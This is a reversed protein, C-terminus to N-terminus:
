RIIKKSDLIFCRVNVDSDLFVQLFGLVWTFGLIFAMQIYFKVDDDGPIKVRSFRRMDGKNQRMKRQRINYITLVLFVGNLVIIVGVPICFFAFNATGNALWCPRDLPKSFTINSNKLDNMPCENTANLVNKLPGRVKHNQCGELYMAYCPRLRSNVYFIDFLISVLVILMPGLWGYLLYKRLRKEINIMVLLVHSSKRRFNRWLDFSIVNMWFFSTLFGYHTLLAVIFCVLPDYQDVMSGTLFSIQAICLSIVLNIVNWAPLNRLEKFLAYTALTVLLFVISM